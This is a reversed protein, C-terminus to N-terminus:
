YRYRSVYWCGHYLKIDAQSIYQHIDAHFIFFDRYLDVSRNSIDSLILQYIPLLHIPPRTPWYKFIQSVVIKYRCANSVQTQPVWEQHFLSLTYSDEPLRQCHSNKCKGWNEPMDLKLKKPSNWLNESVQTLHSISTSEKLYKM